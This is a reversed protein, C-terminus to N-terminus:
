ALREVVATAFVAGIPNGIDNEQYGFLFGVNDGIFDNVITTQYTTSLFSAAAYIQDTPTFFAGELGADVTWIGSSEYEPTLFCSVTKAAVPSTFNMAITIKFVGLTGFEARVGNAVWLGGRSRLVNDWVLVYSGASGSPMTPSTTEFIAYDGIVGPGPITVLTKNGSDSATVGAGVFDLTHHQPLDVGEDQIQLLSPNAELAQVRAYLERINQDATV